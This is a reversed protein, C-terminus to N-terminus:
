KNFIERRATLLALVFIIAMNVASIACWTCIAKIVFIETYTFWGLFLIGFTAIGLQGYIFNKNTATTRVFSLLILFAYGLLGFAPVPIGFPYSSSSKRVIECGSNVCIISSGRLFSQLVYIAIFFGIISLFFIIRNYFISKAIVKTQSM